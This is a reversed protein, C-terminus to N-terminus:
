RGLILVSGKGYQEVQQQALEVVSHAAAEALGPTKLKTAERLINAAAELERFQEPNWAPVKEIVIKGNRVVIRVGGADSGVIFSYQAAAATVEMTGEENGLTLRM